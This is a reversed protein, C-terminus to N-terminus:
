DRVKDKQFLNKPYIGDNILNNIHHKLINIDEKYTLGLWKSKTPVDIIDRGRKIELSMIDPMFFEYSDLNDKNDNFAKIMENDIVNFIDNTFGYMLMSVSNDYDLVMKDLSTNLPTCVVKNINKDYECSSEIIDEVFGDKSIVVGRKVPGNESLTEGLHYGIVSYMNTDLANSLDHFAEDGYFDDATIVAFNSDVEDKACYIAHATGWPKERNEPIKFGQPIKSLDQIVFSIDVRDIYKQKVIDAYQDILAKRSVIVIKDFGYKIASYISYDMIFEGNPGIPFFQKPGGFRSGMGAALIVLTKKHM